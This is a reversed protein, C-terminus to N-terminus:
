GAIGLEEVLILVAIFIVAWLLLRWWPADFFGKGRGTSGQDHAGWGREAGEPRKMLM